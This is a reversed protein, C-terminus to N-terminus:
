PVRHVNPLEGQFADNIPEANLASVIQQAATGDGILARHSAMRSYQERDSLLQGVADVIAAHNAGVARVAGAEVGEPRETKDRMLIVPKGM